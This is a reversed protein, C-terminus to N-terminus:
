HKYNDLNPGAPSEGYRNIKWQLFKRWMIFAVFEIPAIELKDGTLKILKLNFLGMIIILDSIYRGSKVACASVWM